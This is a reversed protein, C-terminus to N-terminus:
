GVVVRIRTGKGPASRITLRGGIGEARERMSDLGIGGKDGVADADFGKGDDVIELMVRQDPSADETRVTVTVSTPQAHKLANNLAEQAIRYLEEEVAAPMALRDDAVLRVQLGARREVADLRQQL